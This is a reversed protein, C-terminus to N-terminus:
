QPNYVRTLLMNLYFFFTIKKKFDIMLLCNLSIDIYNPIFYTIIKLLHYLKRNEIM